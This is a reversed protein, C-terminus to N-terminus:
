INYTQFEKLYKQVSTGNMDTANVGATLFRQVSRIGGLHCAALLGAKTIRVGNVIQGVFSMFKQLQHQNYKILEQLAQEQMSEPFVSPDQRFKEPTIGQFGLNKLTAATFQYKGMCGISNIVKWQNSSELLGLHEVFLRFQIDVKEPPKVISHTKLIYLTVYDSSGSALSVSFLLLVLILQKMM